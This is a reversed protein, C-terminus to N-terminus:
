AGMDTLKFLSIRNEAVGLKLIANRTDDKKEDGFFSVRWHTAPSVSKKIKEFYPADVGALSHGMVIINRVATCKEFFDKNKRIFFKTDKFSKEGYQDLEEDALNRSLSYNDNMHDLWLEEEKPTLNDPMKPEPEKKLKDPNVGHGIIIEETESAKHHIYCISSRAISYYRELTDTYNFNLYLADNPLQLKTDNINCPYQIGGWKYAKGSIFKHLAERMKITLLDIRREAELGAEGSRHPNSDDLYYEIDPWMEERDLEALATEFNGWDNKLSFRISIEEHMESENRQIFNKFSQLSTDPTRGNWHHLDFGNGIVCLTKAATM